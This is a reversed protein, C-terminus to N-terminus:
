KLIRFVLLDVVELLILIIIIWELRSSERHEMIGKFLELDEKIIAIREHIFRYRDKLDFTQTLELNLKNLHENEWTSDPSDFIYLNGSIENKINLVKGIFKKLDTGSINLRGKEELLRTYVSTEELLQETIDAYRDLAVSQSTNLMVLRISEADFSPLVVRDFTVLQKELVIEVEIKESFQNPAGNKSLPRLTKLISQIEKESHNFFSIMGYQFVYIFKKDGNKLFLEDSDTFLIELPLLNRCQRINISAAIQFAVVEFM